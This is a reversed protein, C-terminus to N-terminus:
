HAGSGSVEGDLTLQSFTLSHKSQLTARTCISRKIQSDASIGLFHVFSILHFGHLARRVTLRRAVEGPVASSLFSVNYDVPGREVKVIDASPVMAVVEAFGGISM